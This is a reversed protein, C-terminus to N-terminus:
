SLPSLVVVPIERETKRQYGDYGPYASTMISWLRPKEEPTANGARLRRTEAGIQVSVEPNAMLNQYWQPARDDGGYSAILIVRDGDTGYNLMTTRPQGSKRGTTTLVLMRTKGIKGGVRGGSRRYLEKHLATVGRALTDKVTHKLKPDM